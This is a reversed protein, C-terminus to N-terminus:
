KPQGHYYLGQNLLHDISQIFREKESITSRQDSSAKRKRAIADQLVEIPTEDLIQDIVAQSIM